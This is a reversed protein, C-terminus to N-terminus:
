PEFIEIKNTGLYKLLNNISRMMTPKKQYSESSRAITKGNKHEINWNWKKQKDQFPILIYTPKSNKKEMDKRV